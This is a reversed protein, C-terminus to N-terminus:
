LVDTKKGSISNKNISKKLEDIGIANNKQHLMRHCNSCVLALDSLRTKTNPELESLPIRHHCEIFGKGIEGYTEYFDFSCVECELKGKEKLYKKKKSETLKSSRERLKHLRYIVEGEKASELKNQGGISYLKNNLATNEVTSKIKDAIRQLESKNNQFEEFVEKDLRSFSTMGKRGSRPDIALFNSLKLSVGNPNRFKEVDPKVEHIPLQNLLESLKVVKPNRNHIQGPELEFYLDLTLIIEDRHWKPNKM